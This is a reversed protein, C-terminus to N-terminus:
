KKRLAELIKMNGQAEELADKHTCLCVEEGYAAELAAKQDKFQEPTLYLPQGDYDAMTIEEGEFSGILVGEPTNFGLARLDKNELLHLNIELYWACNKFYHKPTGQVGPIVTEKLYKIQNRIESFM